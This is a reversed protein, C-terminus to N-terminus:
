FGSPPMKNDMCVIDSRMDSQLGPLGPLGPFGLLGLLGPFGLLGPVGPLGPFGPLRTFIIREYYNWTKLVRQIQNWFVKGKETIHFIIQISNRETRFLFKKKFNVFNQPFRM